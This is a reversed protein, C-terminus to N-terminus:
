IKSRPSKTTANGGLGSIVKLETTMDNLLGFADSKIDEPYKAFNHRIVVSALAFLQQTRAARYIAAKEENEFVLAMLGLDYSPSSTDANDKAM